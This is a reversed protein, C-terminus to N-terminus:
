GPGVQPPGPTTPVDGESRSRAVVRESRQTGLTSADRLWPADGIIVTSERVFFYRLVVATSSMLKTAGAPRTVPKRPGFPAPLDVEIRIITPRVVGVEPVAVMAPRRNESRGLGPTSTPTISSADACC